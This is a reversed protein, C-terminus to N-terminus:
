FWFLECCRVQLMDEEAAVEGSDAPFVTPVGAVRKVALVGACCCSCCLMCFLLRAPAVRQLVRWLILAEFGACRRLLVACCATCHLSRASAVCQLVRWLIWCATVAAPAPAFMYYLLKWLAEVLTAKLKADATLWV